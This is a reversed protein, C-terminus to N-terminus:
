RVVPGNEKLKLLLSSTMSHGGAEPPARVRFLFADLVLVPSCRGFELLVSALVCSETSRSTVTPLLLKRFWFGLLNLM